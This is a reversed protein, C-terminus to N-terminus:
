EKAQGKHQKKNNLQKKMKKNRTKKDNPQVSTTACAGPV